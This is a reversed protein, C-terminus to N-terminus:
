IRELEPIIRVNDSRIDVFLYYEGVKMKKLMKWKKGEFFSPSVNFAEGCFRKGYAEATVDHDNNNDNGYEVDEIADYSYVIVNM